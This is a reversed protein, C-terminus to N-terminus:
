FIDVEILEGLVVKELCLICASLEDIAIKQEYPDNVVLEPESWNNGNFWTYM